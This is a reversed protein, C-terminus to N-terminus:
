INQKEEEQQQHQQGMAAATLDVGTTGDTKVV